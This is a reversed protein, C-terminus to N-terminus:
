VGAIRKATDQNEKAVEVGQQGLFLNLIASNQSDRTLTKFQKSDQLLELAKLMTDDERLSEEARAKNKESTRGLEADSSERVGAVTVDSINGLAGTKEASQRDEEASIVDGLIRSNDSAARNSTELAAVLNSISDGKGGKSVEDQRQVTSLYDKLRKDRIEINKIEADQQAEMSLEMASRDLQRSAAQAAGGRMQNRAISDSIKRELARKQGQMSRISKEVLAQNEADSLGPLGGEAIKLAKSLRADEKDLSAFNKRIESMVDESRESAEEGLERQSILFSELEKSTSSSEGLAKKSLELASLISKDLKLNGNSDRYSDVIKSQKAISPDEEDRSREAEAVIKDLEKSDFDGGRGLDLRDLVRLLRSLDKAKGIGIKEQGKRKNKAM